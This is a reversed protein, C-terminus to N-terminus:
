EGQSPSHLYTDVTTKESVCQHGQFNDDTLATEEDRRTKRTITYLYKSM